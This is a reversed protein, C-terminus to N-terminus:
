GIVEYGEAEVTQKLVEDSVDANLTLVATGNEHSVVAEDVQPLAELAKQRARLM